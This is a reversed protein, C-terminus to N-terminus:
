YIPKNYLVDSQQVTAKNNDYCSGLWDMLINVNLGKIRGFSEVEHFNQPM